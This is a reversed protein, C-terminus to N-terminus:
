SNEGCGWEGIGGIWGRAAAEGPNAHIWDHGQQSVALFFRTDWLLNGSRGRIHHPRNMVKARPVIGAAAVPCTKGPLTKQWEKVAAEYLGYRKVQAKSKAPVRTKREKTPGRQSPFALTWAAVAGKRKYGYLSM